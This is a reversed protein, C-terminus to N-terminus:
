PKLNKRRAELDRIKARLEEIKRDLEEIPTSDLSLCNFPADGLRYLAMGSLGNDWGISVGYQDSDKVTGLM